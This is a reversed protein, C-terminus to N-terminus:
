KRQIFILKIIQSIPVMIGAQGGEARGRIYGETHIFPGSLDLILLGKKHKKQNQKWKTKKLQLAIDVYAIGTPL